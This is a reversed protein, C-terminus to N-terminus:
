NNTRSVRLSILSHDVSNFVAKTFKWIAGIAFGVKNAYDFEKEWADPKRGWAFLGAQRGLFMNSAWAVNGGAGGNTAVPVKEHEHLIVGNLIGFRGSFIPNQDGQVQAGNQQYGQWTTDQRLDYGCDTHFVLVFYEDGAIKVPWIKPDAKKAKASCQDIKAPTILTAATLTAVSTASGGFVVTTPSTDFQTFIDDDIVEALWTKLQGKADRRQDFATRKESLRGKLRVANRRQELVLTNSFYPLSEENGELTDDGSVGAGSLKRNLTYTLQDGPKGDLDTKSQIVAWEDESIFKNWYIERPTERWIMAAWRKVTEAAGTTFETDAM